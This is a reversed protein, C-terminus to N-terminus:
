RNPLSSSHGLCSILWTGLTQGTAPKQEAWKQVLENFTARRSLCAKKYKGVFQAVTEQGELSPFPAGGKVAKPKNNNGPGQGEDESMEFM